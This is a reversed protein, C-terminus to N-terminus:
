TPLDEIARRPAKKAATRNGIIVFSGAELCPFCQKCILYKPANETAGNCHMACLAGMDSVVVVLLQGYETATM